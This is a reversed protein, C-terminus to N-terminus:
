FPCAYDPPVDDPIISWSVGYKYVMERDVESYMCEWNGAVFTSGLQWGGPVRKINQGMPVAGFVEKIYAPLMQHYLIERERANLGGVGFMRAAQKRGTKTEGFLGLGLGDCGKSLYKLMYSYVGKKVGAIESLGHPWWGSDDPKPLRKGRPVWTVLHYHIVGKKTTEAVWAYRAQIGWKRKAHNRLLNCFNTIHEPKWAANSPYTLTILVPAYLGPANWNAAHTNTERTAKFFYSIKRKMRNFRRRFGLEIVTPLHSTDPQTRYSQQNRSIDCYTAHSPM